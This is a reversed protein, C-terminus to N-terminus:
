WFYNVIIPYRATAEPEIGPCEPSWLARRLGRKASAVFSRDPIQVWKVRVIVKTRLWVRKALRWYGGHMRGHKSYHRSATPALIVIDSTFGAKEDSFKKNATAKAEDKYGGQQSARHLGMCHPRVCNPGAGGLCFFAYQVRAYFFIADKAGGGLM